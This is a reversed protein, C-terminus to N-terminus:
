NRLDRGPSQSVTDLEKTVKNAKGGPVPKFSNTKLGKKKHEPQMKHVTNRFIVGECLLRDTTTHTCIYPAIKFCDVGYNIHLLPTCTVM